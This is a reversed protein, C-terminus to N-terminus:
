SETSASCSPTVTYSTPDAKMAGGIAFDLPVTLICFDILCGVFTKPDISRGTQTTTAECSPMEARIEHTEGRSVQSTVNGTGVLKGDVFIKADPETSNVHIEDTNGSFMSACGSLVTLATVAAAIKLKQM